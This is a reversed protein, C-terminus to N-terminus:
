SQDPKAGIKNGIMVVPSMLREVSRVIVAKIGGERYLGRITNM